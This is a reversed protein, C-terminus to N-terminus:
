AFCFILTIVVIIATVAFVAALIDHKVSSYRAQNWFLAGPIKM